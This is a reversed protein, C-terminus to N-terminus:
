VPMNAYHKDLHPEIKNFTSKSTVDRFCIRVFTVGSKCRVYLLFQRFRPNSDIHYFTIIKLIIGYFNHQLFTYPDGRRLSELVCGRCIM